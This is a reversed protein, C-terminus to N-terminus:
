ANKGYIVAIAVIAFFIALLVFLSIKVFRFISSLVSPKRYIITPEYNAIYQQEQDDKDLGLIRRKQHIFEEETIIGKEKLENLKLIENAASVM